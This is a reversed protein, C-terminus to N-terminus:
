AVCARTGVEVELHARKFDVAADKYDTQWDKILTMLQEDKATAIGFKSNWQASNQDYVRKWHSAQKQWYTRDAEDNQASLNAIEAKCAELERIKERYKINDRITRKIEKHRDLEEKIKNISVTVRNREAKVRDIEEQTNEIERKCRALKSSGGDQDYAQITQGALKLKHVADSLEREEQQLSKEKDRGRQMLDDLKSQEDSEQPELGQIHSDLRKLTDQHERNAKRLLEVEKAMDSKKDLQYSARSLNHKEKSLDLELASVQSRAWEKDATLKAINNKLAKAKGGLIDLQGQIDDMNRSMGIDAQQATFGEIQGSLSALDQHYKAIDKVPKTLLGVEARAEEHERVYQDHGEVERVLKEKEAALSKIDAQLKPVEATSLRAWIDHSPGAEKARRLDDEAEVLDKEVKAANENAIKHKLRAIFEKEEKGHFARQCMHCEHRKEARSIGTTFYKRMNEFNDFDAKFLDRAEQIESLTKAYEEPECETSEKLRKACAALEKEAKKLDTKADALKYDVQELVRSVLDRQREAEKLQRAKQDVARHFDVELSSPEWTENVLKQLTVGYVGKMKNLNRQRDKAEEKWNELKALEGAQRTCQILDRNLQQSEEEVAQLQATSEQLKSDWSGKKSEDKTKHLRAEIDDVKSELIAREGEDFEINNIEMQFSGTKRDNAASQQKLSNKEAELASKRERLKSLVEQAKKAERETERRAKEVAATQDKALRAIKAMYENIQMDDLDMDFGRINHRHSTEKILAKRRRIEQEHSSRQEENKGAEIHKSSLKEGNEDLSHTLSDYQKLQQQKQQEHIATREEYQDLESQLWEDSEPREELDQRLGAVSSELWSQEKGKVKLSDIVTVYQAARDWAEQHKTEAEKKKADLDTLEERLRDLEATLQKSQREAKDAKDKNIKMFTEKEKLHKLKDGNLTRRLKKLNDIASTYKLAEFIEDFKVKLKAPESM